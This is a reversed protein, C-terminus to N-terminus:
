TPSPAGTRWRLGERQDVPLLHRRPRRRIPTSRTTASHTQATPGQSRVTKAKVIRELPLAMAATGLASFKLVDRRSVESETM